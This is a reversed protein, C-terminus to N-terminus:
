INFHKANWGSYASRNLDALGMAEDLPAHLHSLQSQRKDILREM